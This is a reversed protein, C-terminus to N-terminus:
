LFSVAEVFFVTCPSRNSPSNQNAPSIPSFRGTVLGRERFDNYM